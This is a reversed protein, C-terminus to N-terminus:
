ATFRPSSSGCTELSPLHVVFDSHHDYLPFLHFQIPWVIACRIPLPALVGAHTICDQTSGGLLSAIGPSICRAHQLYARCRRYLLRNKKAKEERMRTGVHALM